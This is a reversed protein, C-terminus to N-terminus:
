PTAMSNVDRILPRQEPHWSWPAGLFLVIIALGLFMALNKHKKIPTRAKKSFSRSCQVLIVFLIMLTAHEVTWYRLMSQKMSAPFTELGIQVLPSLVFYLTLGLLFQLHTLGLLVVSAINLTKSSPGKTIFKFFSWVFVTLVFFTILLRLWSHLTLLLFYM